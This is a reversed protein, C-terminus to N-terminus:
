RGSIDTNEYLKLELTDKNFSQLKLNNRLALFPPNRLTKNKYCLRQLTNLDIVTGGNAEIIAQGASTDWGSSGEFRSYLDYNSNSIAIFKLSSSISSINGFKNIEIFNLDKKNKHLRSSILNLKKNLIINETFIKNYNIKNSIGSFQKKTFIDNIVGFIPYGNKVFSINITSKKKLLLEKSGDIPDILWFENKLNEGSFNEESIIQINTNLLKNRIFKDLKIDFNFVPHDKTKYEIIEAKKNYSIKYFYDNAESCVRKALLFLEDIDYM